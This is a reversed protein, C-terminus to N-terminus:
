IPEVSTSCDSPEGARPPAGIPPPPHRTASRSLRASLVIHPSAPSLKRTGSSRVEVGELARPSTGASGGPVPARAPSGHRSLSRLRSPSGNRSLPRSLSRGLMQTLTRRRSARRARRAKDVLDHLVAAVHNDSGDPQYSVSIISPIATALSAQLTSFSLGRPELNRRLAEAAGPALQRELDALFARAADFDYGSGAVHLTVIPINLRIAEFLELLVWPRTLVDRTQLLVQVGM